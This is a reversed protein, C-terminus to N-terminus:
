VGDFLFFDRLRKCCHSAALTNIIRMGLALEVCEITVTDVKYFFRLLALDVRHDTPILFDASHDLHKGTTCFVVRNEDTLRPDSLSRNCFSKCQADNLVIDRLRQSTMAHYCQVHTSQDCSGFKSALEFLPEFRDQAFDGISGSPHHQEDVFQVRHDPCSCGFTCGISRIQELGCKRPALQTADARGRQILISFM